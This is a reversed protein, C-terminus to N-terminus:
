LTRDWSLLEMLRAQSRTVEESFATREEAPLPPGEMKAVELLPDIFSDNKRLRFELRPDVVLGTSGVYGILDGQRVTAGTKIGQGLRSLHGYMTEYAESHSIVVLLGYGGRRGAFKVKGDAVSSVPTGSKAAYNIGLNPKVTKLIPSKQNFYNSLAIKAFNFPSKLFTKKISRFNADYFGQLVGAKEHRYFESKFGDNTIRVMEITLPAVLRGDQYQGRFLIQFADEPKIDSAFDIQSALLETLNKVILPDLGAKEGADFFADEVSGQSAQHITLPKAALDYRFFGKSGGQRFVLPSQGKAAVFELHSLDVDEKQPDRWFATFTAGPQVKALLNEKELYAILAQCFTKSLGLDELSQSVSKEPAIVSETVLRRAKQAAWLSWSGEPISPLPPLRPGQVTLPPTAAAAKEEQVQAPEPRNFIGFPFLQRWVITVLVV